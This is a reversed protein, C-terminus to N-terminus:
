KSKEGRALSFVKKTCTDIDTESCVKTRHIKGLTEVLKRQFDSVPGIIRLFIKEDSTLGNINDKLKNLRALTLESSNTELDLEAHKITLTIVIPVHANNTRYSEVLTRIYSIVSSLSTGKEDGVENSPMLVKKCSVLPIGSPLNSRLVKETLVESRNAFAMVIRTDGKLYLKKTSECHKFALTNKWRINMDDESLDHHNEKENIELASRSFDDVIFHILNIKGSQKGLLKELVTPALFVLTGALISCILVLQTRKKRGEIQNESLPTKNM